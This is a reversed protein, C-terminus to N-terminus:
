GEEDVVLIRRPDCDKLYQRLVMNLMDEVSLDRRSAYEAIKRNVAPGESHITIQQPDRATDDGEVAELTFWIDNIFTDLFGKVTERETTRKRDRYAKQNRAARTTM